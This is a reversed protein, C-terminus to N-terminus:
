PSLRTYSAEDLIIPMGHEGADCKCDHLAKVLRSLEYAGLKDLAKRFESFANTDNRHENSQRSLM